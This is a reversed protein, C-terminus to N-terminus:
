PRDCQINAEFPCEFVCVGLPDICFCDFYLDGQLCVPLVCVYADAQNANSSIMARTQSAQGEVWGAKSRMWVVCGGVGM